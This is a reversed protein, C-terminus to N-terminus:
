NISLQEFKIIESKKPKWVPLGSGTLLIISPSVVRSEVKRLLWDRDVLLWRDLLDASCWLEVDVGFFFLMFLDGLSWAGEELDWRLLVLDGLEPPWWLEDLDGCVWLEALDDGPWLDLVELPWLDGDACLWLDLDAWDDGPSPLCELLDELYAIPPNSRSTEITVIVVITAIEVTVIAPWM